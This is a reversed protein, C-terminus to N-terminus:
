DNGFFELRIVQTADSFEIRVTYEVGQGSPDYSHNLETTGSTLTIEETQEDGWNITAIIESNTEIAMGFNSNDTDVVFEIHNGVIETIIYSGGGNSAAVAMAEQQTAAEQLMNLVIRQETVENIYIRYKREIEHLPLQNMGPLTSFQQWSMEDIM